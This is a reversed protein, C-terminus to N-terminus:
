NGPPDKRGFFSKAQVEVFAVVDPNYSSIGRCIRLLNRKTGFVRKWIELYRWKVGDLGEFYETNYFILRTEKGKKQRKM